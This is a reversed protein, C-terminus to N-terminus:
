TLYSIKFYRIHFPSYPTNDLLYNFLLVCVFLDFPFLFVYHSSTIHSFHNIFEQLLYTRDKFRMAM